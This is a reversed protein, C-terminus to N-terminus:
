MWLRTPSPVVTVTFFHFSHDRRRHLPRRGGAGQIGPVLRPVLVQNADRRVPDQHHHGVAHPVAPLRSPRGPRRNGEHGIGLAVAHDPRHAATVLAEPGGAARREAEGPEAAGAPVHRPDADAADRTDQDAGRVARPPLLGQEQTAPDQPPIKRGEAGLGQGHERAVHEHERGVADM